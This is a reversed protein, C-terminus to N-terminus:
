PRGSSIRRCRSRPMSRRSRRVSCRRSGRGGAPMAWRWPWRRMQLQPPLTFAYRGEALPTALPKQRGIRVAAVDPRWRTDAALEVVLPAPEGHPVVLEAPLGGVRTFTYREVAKWPVLFRAWANAAADPVAVAAAVAVALPVAALAMWLRHRAQPVAAAFDYREAQAAVQGVAAECLARSRGSEGTAQGSSFERVIEIIGLLQDGLSPFRRAILRAIQDLARHGWIWRHLALPVVACAAVAAAWIGLRLWRPTEAFRDIGFVALYGVLVGFLGGCVAEVTKIRWVLRRFAHLRRELDAPLTIGRRTATGTRM